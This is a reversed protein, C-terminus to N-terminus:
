VEEHYNMESLLIEYDTKHQENRVYVADDEYEGFSDLADPGVVAEVDDIVGLDGEVLYGDAYYNLTIQDYDDIEGFEEPSIVYPERQEDDDEPHEEITEDEQTEKSAYRAAYDMPSPKEYNKALDEYKVFSSRVEEGSKIVDDVEKKYRNVVSAIEEDAIKRYHERVFYWTIGSGLGAGLLFIIAKNM